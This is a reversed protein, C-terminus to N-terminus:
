RFRGKVDVIRRSRADHSERWPAASSLRFLSEVQQDDIVKLKNGAGTLRFIAGLFDGVNGSVEFTDALSNFTGTM